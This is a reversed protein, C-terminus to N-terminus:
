RLQNAAAVMSTLVRRLKATLTATPNLVNRDRGALDTGAGVESMASRQPLHRSTGDESRLLQLLIAKM